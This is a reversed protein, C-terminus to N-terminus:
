QGETANFVVHAMKLGMQIQDMVSGYDKKGLSLPAEYRATKDLLARRNDLTYLVGSM